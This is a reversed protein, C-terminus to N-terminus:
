GVSFVSPRIVGRQEVMEFYTNGEIPVWAVLAIAAIYPAIVELSSLCKPKRAVSPVRPRSCKATLGAMHDAEAAEAEATERTAVAKDAPPVAVPNMQIAVPM